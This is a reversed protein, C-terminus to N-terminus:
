LFGRLHFTTSPHLVLRQSAAPPPQLAGILRTSVVTGPCLLCGGRDHRSRACRPLWRRPGSLSGETRYGLRLSPGIGGAPIPHELLSRRCRFRLPFLPVCSQGELRDHRIVPRIGPGHGPVFTRQRSCTLRHFDCQQLALVSPFTVRWPSVSPPPPVLRPPRCRQPSRVLPGQCSWTRRSLCCVKVAVCSPAKCWRSAWTPSAQATHPSLRM